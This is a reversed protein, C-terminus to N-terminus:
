ETPLEGSSESESKAATSSTVDDFFTILGSLTPEPKAVLVHAKAPLGLLGNELDFQVVTSESKQPWSFVVEHTWQPQIDEESATRTFSADEILAQRFHVLGRAKSIDFNKQDTKLQVTPAYRINEANVSGWYAISAYGKSWHHWVTIGALVGAILIMFAVVLNGSSIGSSFNTSQHSSSM